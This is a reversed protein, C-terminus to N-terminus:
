LKLKLTVGELSYEPSIEMLIKVRMWISPYGEQGFTHVPPTETLLVLVNDVLLIEFTGLRQVPLWYLMALSLCSRRGPLHCSGFSVHVCGLTFNSRISLNLPPYYSLSLLTTEPVLFWFYYVQPTLSPPDPLGAQSQHVATHLHPTPRWSATLPSGLVLRPFLCSSLISYSISPGCKQAAHSLSRSGWNIKKSTQIM